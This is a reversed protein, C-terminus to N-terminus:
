LCITRVPQFQQNCLSPLQKFSYPPLQILQPLSNQSLTLSLQCLTEAAQIQFSQLPHQKLPPLSQHLIKATRQRLRLRHQNFTPLTQDLM